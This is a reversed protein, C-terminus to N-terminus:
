MGQVHDLDYLEAQTYDLDAQDDLDGCKAQAHFHDLDGLYGGCCSWHM